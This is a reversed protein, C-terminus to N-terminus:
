LLSDYMKVMSRMHVSYDYEGIAFDRVKEGMEAIRSTDEILANIERAADDLHKLDILLYSKSGRVTGEVATDKVCIVPCGCAMAEVAMVGFSEATSPMLLLDSAQYSPILRSDDVYGQDIVKINEMKEDLLNKQEITLIYIQRKPRIRLLVEKAIGIGKFPNESTRLMIVFADDPIGLSKRFENRITRDPRFIDLDVGIPIIRVKKGKMIPSSEVMEKMWDSLVHITLDSNGIMEKKFSWLLAATDIKLRKPSDLSPCERCGTRWKSCSYPHICHGTLAWPDHLTWLSPKKKSFSPLFQLSFFSNHIMQFHIIDSRNFKDQIALTFPFPYLISQISFADELKEMLGKVKPTFRWSMIPHVFSSESKKEFCFFEVNYGNTLLYKQFDYGNFRKGYLDSNNVYAITHSTSNM